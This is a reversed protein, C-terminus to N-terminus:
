YTGFSVYSSHRFESLEPEIGTLGHLYDVLEQAELVTVTQPLSTGKERLANLLVTQALAVSVEGSNPRPSHSGPAPPHASSLLALAGQLRLVRSLTHQEALVSAAQQRAIVKVEDVAVRIRRLEHGLAEPGDKVATAAAAQHAAAELLQQAAQALCESEVHPVHTGNATYRRESVAVAASTRPPLAAIRAQRSLPQPKANLAAGRCSPALTRAQM